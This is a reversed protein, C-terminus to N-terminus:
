TKNRKFYYCLKLKKFFSDIILLNKITNFFLIKLTKTYLWKKVIIKDDLYVTPAWIMGDCHYKAPKM